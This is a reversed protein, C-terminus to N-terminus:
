ESVNVASYIAFADDINGRARAGPAGSTVLVLKKGDKEAFSALCQGAEDTYGTKGGLIAGGEFEGSGMKSFLTSSLHNGRRNMNTPACSHNASTVIEAFTGDELAHRLLKAIDEVTTYHQKDHLGTSNSYHTGTMGLSIAKQNMLKVFESESGSVQKALGIACEAGSPLLLGYLLDISTVTENPMFGATSANEDEVKNFIARDLKISGSLSDLNELAVLATMIKTMSAPYIKEGRGKSFLVEGTDLEVLIANASSLAIDLSAVDEPPEGIEQAEAADLANGIYDLLNMLHTKAISATARYLSTSSIIPYACLVAFAALVLFLAITAAVIHGNKNRSMFDERMSIITRATDM